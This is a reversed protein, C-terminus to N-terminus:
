EPFFIDLLIEGDSDPEIKSPTQKSEDYAFSFLIENAATHYAVIQRVALTRNQKDLVYDFFTLTNEQPVVLCLRIHAKTKNDFYQIDQKDYWITLEGDSALCEWRNPDLTQAAFCVSSILFLLVLILPLAKRM